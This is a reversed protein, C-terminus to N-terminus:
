EHQGGISDTKLIGWSLPLFSRRSLWIRLIWRHRRRRRSHSEGAPLAQIRLGPVGPPFGAPPSWRWCSAPCFAPPVPSASAKSLSMWLPSCIWWDVPMGPTQGPAPRRCQPLNRSSMPPSGPHAFAGQQQLDAGVQGAHPFPHQIDGPSSLARCSFSRASRSFTPLWGTWTSASFAMSATYGGLQLGNTRVITTSEMWVMYQGSM